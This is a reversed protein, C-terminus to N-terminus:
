SCRRPSFSYAPLVGHFPSSFALYAATLLVLGIGYPIVWAYYLVGDIESLSRMPGTLREHLEASEDFSLFVFVVALLIWHLTWHDKSRWKAFSIPALLLACVLIAVTSYFTPVNREAGLSFFAVLGLLREDGSLFRISQVVVHFSVLCIVVVGFAQAVRKAKLVISL